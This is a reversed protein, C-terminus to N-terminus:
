NAMLSEFIPGNIKILYERIMKGSQSLESEKWGSIASVAPLIAASTEDKNTISWNCWSLKNQELFAAWLNTETMDINGSGSAESVGWESVFLPVSAAIAKNAKDRLSQKHTSTYFHFAYAINNADIKNGIVEDVDQSWNSTGVIILNEPDNKRISNILRESYPKIVNKWSVQLPENYIEYIINPYKSYESSLTSFFSEAQQVHEEARHDHWDVIVYIGLEICANIITRVKALEKAPNELYGGNEIGMAARIITCKWDDRLWKITEYSYYQSGWQSWFLSMGSLRVPKGEKDLLTGEGISLNGFKEVITKSKVLESNNLTNEKSCSLGPLCVTLFVSIIFKFHIEM